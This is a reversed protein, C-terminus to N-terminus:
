KKPLKPMTLFLYIALLLLAGAIGFGIKGIDLGPVMALGEHIDADTVLATFGTGVEITIIARILRKLIDADATLLRTESLGTYDSLRAIYAVTNNESPPAYRYAILDITNYGSNIKTRLDIALARIGHALDQFVVFGKNEGIMGQWNDGTRLNGPNNNRLGLPYGAINLFSKGVSSKKRKQL